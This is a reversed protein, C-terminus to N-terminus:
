ATKQGISSMMMMLMQFLQTIADSGGGAAGAMSQQQQLEAQKRLQAQQALGNAWSVVDQGNDMRTARGALGNVNDMFQTMSSGPPYAYGGTLGPIGTANFGYNAPSATPFM